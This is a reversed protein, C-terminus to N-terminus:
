TDAIRLMEEVTQIKLLRKNTLLGQQKEYEIIKSANDWNHLKALTSVWETPMPPIHSTRLKEVIRHSLSATEAMVDAITGRSVSSKNYWGVTYISENDPDVTGKYVETNQINLTNEELRCSQGISYILLDCPLCVLKSNSQLTVSHIASENSDVKVVVSNYIFKVIILCDDSYAQSQTSIKHMLELKRQLARDTTGTKAFEDAEFVLRFKFQAQLNFLERLNKTTFASGVTDM